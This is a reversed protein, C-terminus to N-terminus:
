IVQAVTMICDHRGHVPYDPTATVLIDALEWGSEIRCYYGEIRSYMRALAFNGNKTRVDLLDIRPQIFRQAILSNSQLFQDWKIEDVRKGIVIGRSWKGDIPKLIWSDKQGSLQPSNLPIVEPVYQKLEQALPNDNASSWISTLIAKTIKPQIQKFAPIPQESFNWVLDPKLTLNLGEQPIPIRLQQNDVTINERETVIIHPGSQQAFCIKAFDYFGHYYFREKKPYTILLLPDPVQTYLQLSKLFTEAVGLFPQGLEIGRANREITVAPLGRDDTQIETVLLKGNDDAVYDLRFEIISHDYQQELLQGVLEGCSVMRQWQDQLISYREPCYRYRMGERWSQSQELYPQESTFRRESQEFFNM